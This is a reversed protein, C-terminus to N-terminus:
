LTTRIDMVLSILGRRQKIIEVPTGGIVKNPSSMFHRIWDTNGGTLAFLNKTLQILLLASRGAESAPDLDPLRELQTITACNVSLVAALDSRGLGLQGAAALTAKALVVNVAPVDHKSTPM